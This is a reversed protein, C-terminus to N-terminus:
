KLSITWHLSFLCEFKSDFHTLGEIIILIQYHEKSPDQHHREATLSKEIVFSEQEWCQYLHTVHVCMILITSNYRLMIFITIIIIAVFDVM